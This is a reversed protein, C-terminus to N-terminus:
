NGYFGWGDNAGNFPAAKKELIQEMETINKWSPVMRVSFLIDWCSKEEFYSVEIAGAKQDLVAACNQAAKETPFTISFDVTRPNKLDGEEKWIGYLIDGNEDAPFLSKDRPSLSRLISKFM